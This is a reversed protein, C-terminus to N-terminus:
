RIFRTTEFHSWSSDSTAFQGHKDNVTVRIHDHCQKYQKSSSTTTNSNVIQQSQARAHRFQQREMKLMLSKRKKMEQQEFEMELEQEHEMELQYLLMEEGTPSRSDGFLLEFDLVGSPLSSVFSQIEQVPPLQEWKLWNVLVKVESLSNLSPSNELVPLICSRKTTIIELRTLSHPLRIYKWKITCNKLRLDFLSEPLNDFFAKTLKTLSIDLHQLNTLNDFSINFPSPSYGPEARTLKDFHVTELRYLESNYLLVQLNTCSDVFEISENTEDLYCYSLNTILPKVSALHQRHKHERSFKKILTPRKPTYDRYCSHRIEVKTHVNNQFNHLYQLLHPPLSQDYDLDLVLKRCVDLSTGHLNLWHIIEECNTDSLPLPLPLSTSSTLPSNKGSASASASASGSSSGPGSIALGSSSNTATSAIAQKQSNKDLVM